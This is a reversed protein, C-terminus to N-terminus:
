DIKCSKTTTIDIDLFNNFQSILSLSEDDFEKALKDQLKFKLEILAQTHLKALDRDGLEEDIKSLLKGLGVLRHRKTLKYQALTSEYELVRLNHIEIELEKGWNILTVKSTKLEKSIADFSYGEARMEIFRQKTRSTKM